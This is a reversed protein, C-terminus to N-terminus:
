KALSPIQRSQRNEGAIASEETQARDPTQSAMASPDTSLANLMESIRGLIAAIALGVALSLAVFAGIAVIVWLEINM